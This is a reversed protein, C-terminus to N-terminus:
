KKEADVDLVKDLLGMSLMGRKEFAVGNPSLASGVPRLKSFRGSQVVRRLEEETEPAFVKECEVRKTGSWNEVTSPESAFAGDDVDDVFQARVVYLTAAGFAVARLRQSWSWPADRGARAGGAGGGGVGGVGGRARTVHAANRGGLVAYPKSSAQAAFARTASSVSARAGEGRVGACRTVAWATMWAAASAASAAASSSSMVASSSSSVACAAGRRAASSVARM